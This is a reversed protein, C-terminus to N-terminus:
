LLPTLGSLDLDSGEIIITAMGTKTGSEHWEDKEWYAAQGTKIILRDPADTRVWGQGEVVIFLQPIVAQHYGIVGNAEFYAYHIIAESSFHAVSLIIVGSSNYRDISKGVERDLRFIKM